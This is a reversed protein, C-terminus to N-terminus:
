WASLKDQVGITGEIVVPAVQKNAAQVALLYLAGINTQGQPTGKGDSGEDCPTAADIRLLSALPSERLEYALQDVFTRGHSGVCAAMDGRTLRELADHILARGRNNLKRGYVVAGSDHQILEGKPKGAM